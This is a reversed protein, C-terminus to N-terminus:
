RALPTLLQAPFALGIFLLSVEFWYMVTLRPTPPATDERMAARVARCADVPIYTRPLLFVLIAWWDGVLTSRRPVCALTRRDIRQMM